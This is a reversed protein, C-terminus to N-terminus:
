YYREKLMQKSALRRFRPRYNFTEGGDISFRGQEDRIIERNTQEIWNLIRHMPFIM